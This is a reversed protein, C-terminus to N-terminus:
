PKDLSLYTARMKTSFLPRENRLTLYPLGLKAVRSLLSGDMTALIRETPRENVFEVLVNDADGSGSINDGLKGMTVFIKTDEIVRMTQRARRATKSSQSRALGQVEHLVQPIVLFQNEHALETVCFRPLPDNSIKILFDTDFVITAM